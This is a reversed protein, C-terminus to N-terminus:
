DYEDGVTELHKKGENTLRRGGVGISIMGLRVLAPELVDTVTQTSMGLALALNRVGIPRPEALALVRLCHRDSRELGLDDCGEIQMALELEDMSAKTLQRAQAVDRVRETIRLAIRPIGKARSAIGACVQEDFEMGMHSAMGKVMEALEHVQYFDLHFHLGFRQTLPASLSQPCTTALIITHPPLLLKMPGRGAVSINLINQETVVLLEEAAARGICHGEDILLLNHPELRILINKLDTTTSLCQGTTTHLPCLMENSIISALTTKGLGGGNSTLLVHPLPENRQMAAGMAIRLKKKITEQGVLEDLSQPRRIINM